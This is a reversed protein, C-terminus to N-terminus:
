VTLPQYTITCDLVPSGSANATVLTIKQGASVGNAASATGTSLSGTGIGTLAAGTVDSGNIQLKADISTGSALQAKLSVINKASGAALELVRTGNGTSIRINQTVLRPLVPEGIMRYSSAGTKEIYIFYTKGALFTTTAGLNAAANVSYITTSGPWTVVRDTGDVTVIWVTEQDTTTANSFTINVNGTLDTSNKGKNFDVTNSSAQKAVIFSGPVTMPVAAFTPGNNFVLSGVGGSFGTKDSIIGALQASTTSAFQALTLSQLAAGVLNHELVTWSTGVSAETGGANNATCLVMDSVDVSKGSAGGVKGAVSILYADGVSGAPYNPNSSADITGKLKILGSALGSFLSQVFSTTAIANSNDSTIPTPASPTGSFAPSNKPALLALADSLPGNIGPLDASAKDLLDSFNVAGGGGGGGSAFPAWTAGDSFYPTRTGNPAEYVVICDLFGRPDPLTAQKYARPRIIESKVATM